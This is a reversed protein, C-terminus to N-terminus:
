KKRSLPFSFQLDPYKGLVAIALSYTEQTDPTSTIFLDLYRSLGLYLISYGFYSASPVRCNLETQGPFRPRVAILRILNNASSSIERHFSALQFTLCSYKRSSFNTVAILGNFSM